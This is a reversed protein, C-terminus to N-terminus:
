RGAVWRALVGRLVAELAELGLPKVLYDNAGLAHARQRDDDRDSTTLMVVPTEAWSRARVM